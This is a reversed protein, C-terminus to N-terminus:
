VMHVYMKNYYVWSLSRKAAVCHSWKWAISWGMGIRVSHLKANKKRDFDFSIVIIKLIEFKRRHFRITKWKHNPPNIHQSSLFQNSCRIMQRKCLTIMIVEDHIPGCNEIKSSQCLSLNACFPVCLHCSMCNVQRGKHIEEKQSQCQWVANAVATPLPATAAAAWFAFM